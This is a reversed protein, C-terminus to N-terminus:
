KFLHRTQRLVRYIWAIMGPLLGAFLGHGEWDYRQDLWRGAYGLVLLYAIFEIALNGLRWFEGSKKADEDERRPSQDSDEM